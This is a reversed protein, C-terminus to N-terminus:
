RWGGIKEVAIEWKHKEIANLIKDATENALRNLEKDREDCVLFESHIRETAEM